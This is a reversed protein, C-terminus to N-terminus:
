NQASNPVLKFVAWNGDWGMFTLNKLQIGGTNGIDIVLDGAENKNLYCKPQAGYAGSALYSAGMVYKADIAVTGETIVSVTDIGPGFMAPGFQNEMMAEAAGLAKSVSLDLEQGVFSKDVYLMNANLDLMYKGAADLDTLATVKTAIPAVTGDANHGIIAVLTDFKPLKDLSVAAFEKDASSVSATVSVATAKVQMNKAESPAMYDNFAFGLFNYNGTITTLKSADSVAVVKAAANDFIAAIPAGAEIHSANGAFDFAEITKVQSLGRNLM